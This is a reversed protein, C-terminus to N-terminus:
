QEQQADIGRKIRDVNEMLLYKQEENIHRQEEAWILLSQIENYLEDYKNM